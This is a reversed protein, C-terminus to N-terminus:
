KIIGDYYELVPIFTYPDKQSVRIGTRKLYDRIEKKRDELLNMFKRKGTVQITDAGKRLYVLHGQYFLDYRGDDALPQIKKVYKVYLTSPGNYLVNVYGKLVNLTDTGANIIHYTRNGFILSFSDVMEKNIFIVPYSEFSLILEDNYIDYKLNLNEFTRANFTVSGKIFKNTLFFQDGTVKSYQNRWIRGNLLIHRDVPDQIIANSFATTAKILETSGCLCIFLFFVSTLYYLAPKTM